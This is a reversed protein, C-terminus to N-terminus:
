RSRARASTSRARPSRMVEERAGRGRAAGGRHRGLRHAGRRGRLGRHLRRGGGVAGEPGVGARASAEARGGRRREDAGSGRRRAAGPRRRLHGPDCSREARRRSEGHVRGDGREGARVDDVIAVTASAEAAGAPVTVSKSAFAWDENEQATPTGEVSLTFTQASAYVAGDLSLTLTAKRDAGEVVSAKSLALTLRPPARITGSPPYPDSTM